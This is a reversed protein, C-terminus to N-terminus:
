FSTCPLGTEGELDTMAWSCAPERALKTSVTHQTCCTDSLACRAAGAHNSSFDQREQLLPVGARHIDDAGPQRVAHVQLKVNVLQFSENPYYLYDAGRGEVGDHQPSSRTHTHTGAPTHRTRQLLRYSALLAM